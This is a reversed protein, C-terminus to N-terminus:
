TKNSGGRGRDSRPRRWGMRGVEVRYSQEAQGSVLEVYNPVGNGDRDALSPADQTRRVYHVCFHASCFPPAEQVSYGNLEPDKRGDTPRALLATAVRADEGRLRPLAIALESLLTTLEQGRPDRLASEARHLAMKAEHHAAAGAPWDAKGSGAAAGVAAFSGCVCFPMFLVTRATRSGAVAMPRPYRLKQRNCNISAARAPGGVM